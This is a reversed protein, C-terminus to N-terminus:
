LVADAALVPKLVAALHATDLAQVIQDARAGSRDRVVQAVDYEDSLGRTKARGGRRWRALTGRTHETLNLSPKPTVVPAAVTRRGM